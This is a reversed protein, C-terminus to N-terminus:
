KQKFQSITEQKTRNLIVEVLQKKKYILVFFWIVM